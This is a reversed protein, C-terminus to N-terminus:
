IFKQQRDKLPVPAGLVFAEQYINWFKALDSQQPRAAPTGCALDCIIPNIRRFIDSNWRGRSKQSVDDQFDTLELTNEFASVEAFRELKRKKYSTCSVIKSCYQDKHPM